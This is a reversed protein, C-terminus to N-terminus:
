IHEDHGFAVDCGLRVRASEEGEPIRLTVNLTLGASM